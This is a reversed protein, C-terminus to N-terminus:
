DHNLEKIFDNYCCVGGNINFARQIDQLSYQPKNLNIWDKAAKETSFFKCLTSWSEDDKFKDAMDPGYVEYLRRVGIPRNKFQINYYYDGEFIEIGDETIFLVEKKDM